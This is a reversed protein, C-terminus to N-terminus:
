LQNTGDSFEFKRDVLRGEVCELTRAPYKRILEHEHTAMIVSTGALNIRFLIEMIRDTAEPDLNGTPEDALLLIPDNILARAISVRQQEGGSLQHPMSNLKGSLGVKSLLEMARQKMKKKERWGTARMAFHLNDMISRDPLLQFDQFVIGLRRRLKPIERRKINAISYDGVRVDGQRPPLDAYILKLISSKGAGTKGILYVFEGKGMTFNVDQLVNQERYGTVVHDFVLIKENYDENM